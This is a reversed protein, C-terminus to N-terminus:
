AAAQFRVNSKRAFTMGYPRTRMKKANALKVRTATLMLGSV